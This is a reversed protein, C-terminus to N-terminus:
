RIGSGQLGPFNLVESCTTEALAPAAAAVRAANGMILNANIVLRSRHRREAAVTGLPRCAIRTSTPM